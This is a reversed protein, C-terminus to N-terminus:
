SSTNLLLQAPRLIRRGLKYRAALAYSRHCNRSISLWLRHTSAPVPWPNRISWCRPLLSVPVALNFCSTKWPSRIPYKFVCSLPVFWDNRAAAIYRAFFFVLNYTSIDVSCSSSLYPQFIVSWSNSYPTSKLSAKALKEVSSCIRKQTLCLRLGQWQRWDVLSMTSDLYIRDGPSNEKLVKFLKGFQSLQWNM